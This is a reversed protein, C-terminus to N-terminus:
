TFQRHNKPNRATTIILWDMSFIKLEKLSFKVFLKIESDGSAPHPHRGRPLLVVELHGSHCKLSLEKVPTLINSYKKLALSM